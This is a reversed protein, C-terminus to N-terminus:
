LWDKREIGTKKITYILTHEFYKDKQQFRLGYKSGDSSNASVGFGFKFDQTIVGTSSNGMLVFRFKEALFSGDFLYANNVYFPIGTHQIPSGVIVESQTTTTDIRYTYYYYLRDMDFLRISTWTSSIDLGFAFTDSSQIEYRHGKMPRQLMYHDKLEFRDVGIVTYIVRRNGSFYEPYYGNKEVDFSVSPSVNTINTIFIDSQTIESAAGVAIAYIGCGTTFGSLQLDYPNFELKESIRCIKQNIEVIGPFMTITSITESPNIFGTRHCLYHIDNYGKETIQTLKDFSNAGSFLNSTQCINIQNIGLTFTSVLNASDLGGNVVDYIEDFARVTTSPSITSSTTISDLTSTDLLGM